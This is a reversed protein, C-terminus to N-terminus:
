SLVLLFHQCVFEPMCLAMINAFTSALFVASKEISLPYGYYLLTANETAGTIKFTGDSSHTWGNNKGVWENNLRADLQGKKPDLYLNFIQTGSGNVTYRLAARKVPEGDFTRNYISLLKAIKQRSQLTLNKKIKLILLSYIIFIGREM